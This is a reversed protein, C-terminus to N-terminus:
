PLLGKARAITVATNANLADSPSWGCNICTWEEWGRILRGGICRRCSAMAWGGEPAQITSANLAAIWAYPMTNGSKVLSSEM